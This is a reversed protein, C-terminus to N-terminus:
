GPTTFHPQLYVLSASSNEGLFDKVTNLLSVLFADHSNLLSQDDM